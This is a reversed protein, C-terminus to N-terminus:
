ERWSPLRGILLSDPLVYIIRGSTEDVWAGRLQGLEPSLIQSVVSGSQAVAVIRGRGRDVTYILGSEAGVALSSPSLLGRDLDVSLPIDKDGRFRRLRGDDSSVFFEAVGEDNVAVLLETANHLDTRGVSRAPSDLETREIAFRWIAGGSRDLLYVGGATAAVADVSGLRLREPIPVLLVGLETWRFLRAQSDLIWLGDTALLGDSANPQRPQWAISLPRGARLQGGLGLLEGEQFVVQVVGDEDVAFVRGGADDLVFARGAGFRISGLAISPGFGSLDAFTTLSGPSQILSLEALVAEIEARLQLADAALPNMELASQVARLADRLALQIAETSVALESAALGNRARELSSRFQDDDSQLLSPGLLAATVVFLVAVMGSLVIGVRRATAVRSNPDARRLRPREMAERSRERLSSLPPLSQGLKMIPRNLRTSRLAATPTASDVRQVDTLAFPSVPWGATELAAAPMPTLRLEPLSFRARDPRRTDANSSLPKVEDRTVGSELQDTAACQGAGAEPISGEDSPHEVPEQPSGAGMLSHPTEVPTASTEARGIAIVAADRLHLLAPYIHRLTNEVTLRSLAIRLEPDLLPAANSSFLLAWGAAAPAAAFELTIPVSGGIPAAVLDDQQASVSTPHRHFDIRRLDAPGVDGALLAVSPGAQALVAPRDARQILCSLGYRVHEDPLRQRNWSRLEDHATEISANLAGTLSRAAPDFRECVHQVFQDIFADAPPSAAEALISLRVMRGLRDVSEIFAM